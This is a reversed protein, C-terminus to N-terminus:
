SNARSLSKHDDDLEGPLGKDLFEQYSEHYDERTEPSRFNNTKARIPQDRKGGFDGKAKKSYKKFIQLYGTTKDLQAREPNPFGLHAQLAHDWDLLAPGPFHLLLESARFGPPASFARVLSM